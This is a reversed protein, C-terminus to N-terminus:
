SPNGMAIDTMVLPYYSHIRRLGDGISGHLWSHMAWLRAVLSKESALLCFIHHDGLGEQFAKSPLYVELKPGQFSWQGMFLVCINLM